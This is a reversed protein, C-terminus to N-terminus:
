LIKELRWSPDNVYRRQGLHDIYTWQGDDHSVVRYGLRHYLRFAAENEKSVTLTVRHFGRKILDLEVESLMRTGIGQGQFEPKVRFGYIYARKRGDALEARHSELQVFIQAVLEKDPIEALWLVANGLLKQRFADKYLQRYHTYKGEWELANLDRETVHRIILNDILNSQTTSM